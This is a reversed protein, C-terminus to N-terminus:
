RPIMRGRAGRTSIRSRRLQAWDERSLGGDPTFTPAYFAEYAAFDKRAAVAAWVKVQQVVENM